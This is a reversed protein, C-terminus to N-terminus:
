SLSGLESKLVAAVSTWDYQDRALKALDDKYAVGIELALPVHTVIDAVTNDPDLKMAAAVEPPVVKAARDISAAMGGFYTGLPFCGSALSELFVLPGAERVVSPFVGVDCCPFLFRLENHTLYGTFVVNKARVNQKAIAFYNDLKGLSNLKEYFRAVNTLESTGTSAAPDGELAKGWAVIKEVLARDGHELAWVFAEMPERLPGHGVVILRLDPVREFILPLAAFVAQPGKMSIIRGPFLLTPDSAWDITALKEEVDADPAKGDYRGTELFLQRLGDQDTAGSLRSYM